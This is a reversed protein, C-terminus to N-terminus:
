RGDHVIGPTRDHEDLTLALRELAPCDGKPRSGAIQHLDGLADLWAIADDRLTRVEHSECRQRRGHGSVSM